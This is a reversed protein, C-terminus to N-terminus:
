APVEGEDVGFTTCVGVVLLGALRALAAILLKAGAFALAPAFIVIVPLLKVPAVHTLIPPAAATKLTTDAVLIVTVIGAFALDPLTVIAVAAPMAVLEVPKVL